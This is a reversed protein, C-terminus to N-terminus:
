KGNWLYSIFRIAPCFASADGTNGAACAAECKAADTQPLGVISGAAVTAGEITGAAVNVAGGALDAAAGKVGRLAVYAVLLVVVGGAILYPTPIAPVRM